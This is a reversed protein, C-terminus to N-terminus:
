CAMSFFQILFGVNHLTIFALHGFLIDERIGGRFLLLKADMWPCLPSGVHHEHYFGGVLAPSTLFMPKIGPDLLDRPSPFAFGSWSEQRSSVLFLPAQCATTQPTVFLWVRSHLQAHMYLRFYRQPLKTTWTPSLSARTFDLVSSFWESALQWAASEGVVIRTVSRYVAGYEQLSAVTWKDQDQWWKGLFGPPSVSMQANHLLCVSSPGLQLRSTPWSGRKATTGSGRSALGGIETLSYIRFPGGCHFKPGDWGCDTFQGPWVPGSLVCVQTYRTGGGRGRGM